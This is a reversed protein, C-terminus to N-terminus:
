DMKIIFLQEFPVARFIQIVRESNVLTLTHNEYEMRTIQGGRINFRMGEYEPNLVNSLTFRFLVTEKGMSAITSKPSTVFIMQPTIKAMIEPM